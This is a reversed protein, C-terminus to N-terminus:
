PSTAVIAEKMPKALREPQGIQDFASEIRERDVEVRGQSRDAITAEASTLPRKTSIAFSVTAGRSGAAIRLDQATRGIDLLVTLSADAAAVDNALRNLVPEIIALAEAVGPLFGKVAAADRANAFHRDFGGRRHREVDVSLRNLSPRPEARSDM